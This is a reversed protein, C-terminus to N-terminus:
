NLRAKGKAEMWGGEAQRLPEEVVARQAAQQELVEDLPLVQRRQLAAAAVAVDLLAEHLIAEDFDHIHTWAHVGLLFGEV